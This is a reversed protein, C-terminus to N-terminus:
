LGFGPVHFNNCNAENGRDVKKRRREIICNKDSLSMLENADLQIFANKGYGGDCGFDPTPLSPFVKVSGIRSSFAV